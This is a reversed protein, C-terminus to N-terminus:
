DKDEVEEIRLRIIELRAERVLRRVDEEDVRLHKSIAGDSLGEIDHLVFAIRLDAPLRTVLADLEARDLPPLEKGGGGVTTDEAAKMGALLRLCLSYVHAAYGHYVPEPRPIESKRSRGHAGSKEAM